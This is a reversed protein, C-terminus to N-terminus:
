LILGGGNEKLWKRYQKHNPMKESVLNWFRSSHNHEKLHCLEHVIVYDIVELPAFILKWNFNLNGKSSCSGWNTRNDKIAIRNYKFNYFKNYEEVGEEVIQRFQKKLEKTISEKIKKKNSKEGFPVQVVLESGSVISKFSQRDKEVIYLTLEEGLYQIKELSDFNYTKIKAKKKQIESYIRGSNQHLFEVARSENAWYPYTLIVEGTSTIKISINHTRKSKKTTFEFPM